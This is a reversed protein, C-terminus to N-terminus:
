KTFTDIMIQEYILLYTSGAVLPPGVGGVRRRPLVLICMQTRVCEAARDGVM